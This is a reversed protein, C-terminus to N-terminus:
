TKARSAVNETGEGYKGTGDLIISDETDQPLDDFMGM